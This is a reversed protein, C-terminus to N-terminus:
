AKIKRCIEKLAAKGRPLKAPIGKKQLIMDRKQKVMQYLEKASMGDFKGAKKARPKRKRPKKKVAKKVAETVDERFEERGPRKNSKQQDAKESEYQM